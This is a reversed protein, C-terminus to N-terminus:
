AFLVGDAPALDPALGPAGAEALGPGPLELLGAFVETAPRMVGPVWGPPVLEDAALLVGAFCTLKRPPPVAWTPDLPWIWETLRLPM